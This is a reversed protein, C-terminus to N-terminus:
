GASELRPGALRDALDALEKQGAGGLWERLVQAAVDEKRVDRGRHLAIVALREHDDRELTLYLPRYPAMHGERDRLTATLIGV